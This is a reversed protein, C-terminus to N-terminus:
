GNSTVPLRAAKKIEPLQRRSDPIEDGDLLTRLAGYDVWHVNVVAPTAVWHSPHVQLSPTNGVEKMADPLDLLFLNEFRMTLIKIYRGKASIALLAGRKECPRRWLLVRAAGRCHRPNCHTVVLASVFFAIIFAVLTTFVLARGTPGYDLFADNLLYAIITVLYATGTATLLFLLRKPASGLLNRRVRFNGGSGAAATRFRAVVTLFVTAAGIAGLM